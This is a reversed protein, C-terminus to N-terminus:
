KLRVTADFTNDLTASYTFSQTLVITNNSKVVITYDQASLPGIEAEIDYPCICNAEPPATEAVTITSGDLSVKVDITANCTFRANSHIFKMCNNDVAKLSVTEHALKEDLDARKSMSTMEKCDSQKFNRLELKSSDDSSCATLMVIASLLAISNLKITKKM